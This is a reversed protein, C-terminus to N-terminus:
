RQPLSPYSPRRYLACCDRKTTFGGCFYATSQALSRCFGLKNLWDHVEAIRNTVFFLYIYIYVCSVMNEGRRGTVAEEGVINDHELHPRLLWSPRPRHIPQFRNPLQPTCIMQNGNDFVNPSSYCHNNKIVTSASTSATRSHTM